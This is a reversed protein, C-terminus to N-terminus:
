ILDAGDEEEEEEKEQSNDYSTCGRRNALRMKDHQLWFGVDKPPRRTELMRGTRLTNRRKSPLGAKTASILGSPSSKIPATVAEGPPCSQDQM